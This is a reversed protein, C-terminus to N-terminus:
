GYLARMEAYTRPKGDPKTFVHEVFDKAGKTALIETAKRNMETQQKETYPGEQQEDYDDNLNMKSTNNNTNSM